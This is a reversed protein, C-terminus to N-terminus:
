KTKLLISVTGKLLNQHKEALEFLLGKEYFDKCRKLLNYNVKEKPSQQSFAPLILSVSSLVKYM